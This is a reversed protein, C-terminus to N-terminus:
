VEKVVEEYDYRWRPYSIGEPYKGKGVAIIMNIQSKKPLDLYKKIRKSDFGEMACTDYGEAKIGLMFTQAALAISKHITVKKDIATVERVMPQKRGKWLVFLRKFFSGIYLFDPAYFVPMLKSYYEKRRKKSRESEASNDENEIAQLNRKVSLKYKDPRAVFIVLESATTAAKQGMCLRAVEKKKEPNLVRYFEWLQMNSSNPSLIARELSRRVVDKDYSCDEEYRRISRRENVLADFVNVWEKM